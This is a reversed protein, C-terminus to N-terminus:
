AIEFISFINEIKSIAHDKTQISLRMISTFIKSFLEHQYTILEGEEYIAPSDQNQLYKETVSKMYDLINLSSHQTVMTRKQRLIYTKAGSEDFTSFDVLRTYAILYSSTETINHLYNNQLIMEIKGDKLFHTVRGDTEM